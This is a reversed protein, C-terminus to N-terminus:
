PSCQQLVGSGFGGITFGYLFYTQALIMFISFNPVFTQRSFFREIGPM